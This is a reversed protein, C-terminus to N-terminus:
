LYCVCNRLMERGRKLHKYVTTPRIHLLAAIEEVKKREFYYYTICQRQRETLERRLATNLLKEMRLLRESKKEGSGCYRSFAARGALGESLRLMSTRM